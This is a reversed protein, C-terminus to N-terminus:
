PIGLTLETIFLIGLLLNLEKTKRYFNIEPKLPQKSLRSDTKKIKRKLKDRMYFLFFFWKYNKTLLRIEQPRRVQYFYFSIFYVGM